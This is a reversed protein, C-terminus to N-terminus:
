HRKRRRVAKCPNGAYVTWPELDRHACARAGLVAGDHVTVGPLVMAEAAIWAKEGIDIPKTVLPFAPDDFDHTGGCLFARQSILAGKGVRIVDMNYIRCEPGLCAGDDLILNRPWWIHASPYVRVNKGIRAGFRRLWFLRWGNARRWNWRCLLRDVVDWAFREAKSRWGIAHEPSAGEEPVPPEGNLQAV